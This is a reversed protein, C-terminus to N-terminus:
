ILLIVVGAAASLCLATNVKKRKAAESYMPERIATLRAIHYDCSKLQEDRYSGGLEQCFSYLVEATKGDPAPKLGDLLSLFDGPPSSLGCGTLLSPECRRLIEGVPVCYCDIQVRIFRLLAILSDMQSLKKSEARNLQFATLWGAFLILAGGAAKIWM